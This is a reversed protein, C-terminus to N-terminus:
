RGSRADLSVPGAGFHVIQLLGGAILLNKLFHIMTNQDAFNSHFFIATVFCWIALGLAVPRVRYGILLLVGLGIEVIVALGFGLPAFPLGAGSIAAAVGQYAALKSLGSMLFVGGILVRGAFPLFRTATNATVTNPTDTNITTANM